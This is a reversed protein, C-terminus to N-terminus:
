NYKTKNVSKSDYDIFRFLNTLIKEAEQRAQLEKITKITKLDKMKEIEEQLYLKLAEGNATGKLESLQKLVQPTM